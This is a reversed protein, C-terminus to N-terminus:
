FLSGIAGGGATGFAGGLSAGLMAGALTGVGPFITTGLVAGATTGVAAGLSSGLEQKRRGAAATRENELAAYGALNGGGGGGGGGGASLGGAFGSAMGLYRNVESLAADLVAGSTEADIDQLAAQGAGTNELGRGALATRTSERRKAGASGTASAKRQAVPSDLFEGIDGKLARQVMQALQQMVPLGTEFAQKERGARDKEIGFRQKEIEVGTKETPGPKQDGGPM